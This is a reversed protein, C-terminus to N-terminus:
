TKVLLNWKTPFWICLSRAVSWHCARFCTGIRYGPLSLSAAWSGGDRVVRVFTDRAHPLRYPGCDSGVSEHHRATALWASTVPVPSVAVLLESLLVSLFLPSTRAHHWRSSTRSVSTLPAIQPWTRAYLRLAEALGRLLTPENCLFEILHPGTM